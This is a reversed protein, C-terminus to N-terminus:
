SANTYRKYLNIKEICNYQRYVFYSVTYTNYFKYSNEM